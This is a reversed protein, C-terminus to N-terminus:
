NTHVPATTEVHKPEVATEQGGCCKRNSCRLRRSTLVRIATGRSGSICLRHYCPRATHLQNPSQSTDKRRHSAQAAVVVHAFGKTAIDQPQLVNTRHGEACDSTCAAGCCQAIKSLLRTYDTAHSERDISCTAEILSVFLVFLLLLKM